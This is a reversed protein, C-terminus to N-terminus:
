DAPIPQWGWLERVEDDLGTIEWRLLALPLRGRALFDDHFQRLVFGEGLQWRRDALLKRMQLSG